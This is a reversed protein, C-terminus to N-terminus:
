EEVMEFMSRDFVDTVTTRPTGEGDEDTTKGSMEAFRRARNKLDSDADTRNPTEGVGLFRSTKIEDPDSADPESADPESSEAETLAELRESASRLRDALNSRDSASDEAERSNAQEGGSEGDQARGNRPVERRSEATPSKGRPDVDAPTAEPTREPIQGEGEGGMLSSLITRIVASVSSTRGRAQQELWKIQERSLEVSLTSRASSEDAEFARPSSM